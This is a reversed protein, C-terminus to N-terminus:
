LVYHNLVLVSSNYVAMFSVCTYLITDVDDLDVKYIKKFNEERWTILILSM